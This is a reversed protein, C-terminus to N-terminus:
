TLIMAATWAAAASRRLPDAFRHGHVALM